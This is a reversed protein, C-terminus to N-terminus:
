RLRALLYSILRKNNEDIILSNEKAYQKIKYNNYFEGVFKPPIDPHCQIGYIRKSKIKIIYPMDCFTEIVEIRKNPVVYDYHCRFINEFGMIKTDYGCSVKDLSKIKAGCVYAILQCGLCIGLLPRNEEICKKILDIVDALDASQNIETVSQHGGLIIVTSYMHLNKMHSRMEYDDSSNILIFEEDLYTSIYTERFGNQIILIM